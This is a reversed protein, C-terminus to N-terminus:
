QSPDALELRGVGEWQRGQERSDLSFLGQAQVAPSLGVLLALWVFRM